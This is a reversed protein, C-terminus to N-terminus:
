KESLLSRIDAEFSQKEVKGVHVEAVHGRRDILLTTPLATISYKAAFAADAVVIPYNVPHDRLYPRVKDWGEEDLAVGVSALGQREFKKQFEIFWPMEEKCGTCWTAWFDLLVVKGRLGSLSANAGTADTLAFGRAPQRVLREQLGGRQSGSVSGVALTLVILLWVGRHIAM